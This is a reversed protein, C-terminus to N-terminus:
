PERGEGGEGQLARTDAQMADGRSIRDLREIEAVILAAAKVLNRRPDSPKWRERGWTWIFHPGKTGNVTLRNNGTAYCAAAKALEGSTHHEDDHEATWGEAEVQRRREAAIDNLAGHSRRGGSMARWMDHYNFTGPWHFARGLGVSKFYVEAAALMNDSMDAKLAEDDVKGPSAPSATLAARDKMRGMINHLATMADYDDDKMWEDYENIAELIIDRDRSLRDQPAVVSPSAPSPHGRARQVAANAEDQTLSWSRPPRTGLADALRDFLRSNRTAQISMPDGGNCARRCREAAERAEVILAEEELRPDTTM